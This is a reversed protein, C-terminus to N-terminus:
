CARYRCSKKSFELRPREGLQAFRRAEHGVARPPADADPERELLVLGRAARRQAVRLRLALVIHFQLPTHLPLLALSLLLMKALLHRQFAGRIHAHSRPLLNQSLLQSLQKFLREQM